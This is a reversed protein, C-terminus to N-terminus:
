SFALGPMEADELPDVSQQERWPKEGFRKLCDAYSHIYANTESRATSWYLNPQGGTTPRLWRLRVEHPPESEVFALVFKNKSTQAASIDTHGVALERLWTYFYAQRHYAEYLIARTVSESISRGMKQSFTKLDLTYGPTVWDLKAKLPTGAEPDNVFIPVEANGEKLIVQLKPEAALAAACGLVRDWDDLSLIEKGVHAIEHKSIEVDLIPVNADIASIQNILDSKRTGRPVHGASKLWTRMDDMTVLCGEPQALACTYRKEFEAPQLVACHLATGLRMEKSPEDPPRNPNVHLHWYRLPSVALDKMGSNSFARVAFYDADRRLISPLIASAPTM